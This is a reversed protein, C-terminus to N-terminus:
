ADPVLPNDDQWATSDTVPAPCSARVALSCPLRRVGPEPHGDIARLLSEAALRGLRYLNMDVSCLPPRTAAALLTWNDFGVLAVDQPIRIGLAGLADAVGRGIQDSGCFIGDVTRDTLLRQAAAFGARETFAGYTILHDPLELGEEALARRAGAIRERVALVSAPGTIHVIRRCGQRLLQRAALWGGHEDDVTLSSDEPDSSTTYAHLVPFPLSRPLPPAPDTARGTVILGDVRRAALVDLYHRERVADRRADCLLLSATDVTLADEVGGLLPPTFRGYGDRTLLGVTYTRGTTLSSANRNPRFDLQRAVDLIRQRTEPRMRGKGNLGKSATAVSVGAVRAIDRITAAM